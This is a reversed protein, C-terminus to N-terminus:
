EAILSIPFVIVSEMSASDSSITLLMSAARFRIGTRITRCSLLPKLREDNDERRKPAETLVFSKIRNVLCNRDM